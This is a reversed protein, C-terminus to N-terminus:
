RIALEINFCTGEDANYVSLNGKHHQEIIIKSMYLGLGTGNKEEKTSFYPDFIKDIINDKIGGGNDCILINASFDNISTRISIHPNIINKEKFNDEANKLINLIVQMVENEHMLLSLTVSYDKTIGIKGKLFSIEFLKLARDIPIHLYSYKLVKDPKYLTRFDDITNSLTQTLNEIDDMKSNLSQSLNENLPDDSALSIKIKIASAIASISSLPQRWQHAIMSLLEGMQAMRSQKIMQASQEKVKTDLEQSLVQYKENSAKLSADLLKRQSIDRWSTHIVTDGNIHLRSLLIEAWFVEGNSRKHLWEFHNKGTDMCIQIMEEAKVDSRQGDAQYEPSLEAPHKHLFEDKNSSKMMDLVAKNCSIIKGDKMLSLADASYEFIIEFAEKQEALEKQVKHLTTVDQVTGIMRIPTADKDYIAHGVEHVFKEEGTPLIIRHFIDYDNNNQVARKTAEAVMEKDDPHITELFAEYTAAFEQPEYGFIKYIEDSWILKGGSIDWDWHGIKAIGQADILFDNSQKLQRELEHENSLDKSIGVMGILKSETDVLPAKQTLLYLKRGDAHSAWEYNSYEELNEFVRKDMSRFLDAYEKTFLDYDTKGIIYERPLGVLNSFAQNCGIYRYETDKYFILDSISNTVNLLLENQVLLAQTLSSNKEELSRTKTYEKTRDFDIGRYGCFDGNNNYMPEGSTEIHITSGDKHICTNLLKSFSKEETVIDTFIDKVRKAEDEHMFDFPSKGLMDQPSYGAVRTINESIYTYLGQIDIEWTWEYARDLINLRDSNLIHLSLEKRLAENEYQLRELESLSM